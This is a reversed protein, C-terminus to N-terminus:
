KKISMKAYLLTSSIDSHGMMERLTEVDCGNEMRHYAFSHRLMQPTIEKTIGAKKAYSKLIKWFGQRSMPQGIYNLFLADCPRSRQLLPRYKELYLRLLSVTEGQLPLIRQKNEDGCVVYGSALSVDKERLSVLETVRMGTSCLLQLMAKDRVGKADEAKAQEVLHEMEETSLILPLHKEVKPSELGLVPNEKIWGKALMFQYFSRLSATNRSITAASRQAKELSYLYSMVITKTVDTLSSIGMTQAYLSFCSLDRGYSAITNVSAKKVQTLYDLFATIYTDM